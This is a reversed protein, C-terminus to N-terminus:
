SVLDCLIYTYAYISIYPLGREDFAVSGKLFVKFISGLFHDYFAALSLVNFTSKLLCKCIYIHIFAHMCISNDEIM